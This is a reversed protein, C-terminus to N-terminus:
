LPLILMDSVVKKEGNRILIVEDCGTFKMYRKVIVDAYKPDLEMTYCRRGLQQCTIVTSGSGGFTDIVIEGQRSSNKVLRALLKLPKM